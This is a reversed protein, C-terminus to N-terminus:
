VLLTRVFFHIVSLFLPIFGGKSDCSLQLFHKATYIFQWHVLVIINSDKGICLIWLITNALINFSASQIMLQSKQSFSVLCVLSGPKSYFRFLLVLVVKAYLAFCFYNNCQPWFVFCRHISFMVYGTLHFEGTLLCSISQLLSLSPQSTLNKSTSVYVNNTLFVNPVCTTNEFTFSM